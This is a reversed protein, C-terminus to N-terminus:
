HMGSNYPFFDTGNVFGDGDDDAHNSLYPVSDYIDPVGDNDSDRNARDKRLEKAVDDNAAAKRNNDAVVRQNVTAQTKAQLQAATPIHKVTVKPNLPAIDIWNPYGDHDSDGLDDGAFTDIVDPIHDGDSDYTLDNTGHHKDFYDLVSDCDSDGLIDLVDCDTVHHSPPPAEQTTGPSNQSTEPDGCGMLLTSGLAGAVALLAIRKPFQEM